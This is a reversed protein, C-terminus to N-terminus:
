DSWSQWADSMWSLNARSPKAALGCWNKKRRRAKERVHSAAFCGFCPSFLLFFLPSFSGAAPLNSVKSNFGLGISDLAVSNFGLRDRGAAIYIERGLRGLTM